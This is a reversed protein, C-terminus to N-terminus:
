GCGEVERGLYDVDKYQDDIRNSRKEAKKAAESVRAKILEKYGPVTQLWHLQLSRYAARLEPDSDIDPYSARTRERHLREVSDRYKHIM